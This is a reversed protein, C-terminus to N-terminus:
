EQLLNLHENKQKMKPLTFCDIDILSCLITQENCGIKLSHLLFNAKNSNDLGMIMSSVKHHKMRYISKFFSVCFFSFAFFNQKKLYGFNFTTLHSWAVQNWHWALCFVFSTLFLHFHRDKRKVTFIQSFANRLLANSVCFVIGFLYSMGSM